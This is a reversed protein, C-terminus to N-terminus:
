ALRWPQDGRIRAERAVMQNIWAPDIRAERRIVAMVADHNRSDRVFAAIAQPDPSM